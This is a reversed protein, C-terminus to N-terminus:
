GGLVVVKAPVGVATSGEPVDILLVAGAGVRACNGISVAGLITANAGVSVGDGLQPCVGDADGLNGITVGQRLECDAGIVSRPNVVCGFGHRIRLRPGVRTSAPLEVGLIWEVILKYVIVLVPYLPTGHACQALRFLVLIFQSKPYGANARWDQLLRKAM